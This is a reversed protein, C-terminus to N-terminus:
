GAAAIHVKPAVPEQAQPDLSGGDSRTVHQQSTPPIAPLLVRMNQSMCVGGLAIIAILAAVLLPRSRTRELDVVPELFVHSAGRLLRTSLAANATPLELANM